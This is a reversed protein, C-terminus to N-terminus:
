IKWESKLRKLIKEAALQEADRKSFGKATEEGEGQVSVVITFTPQHDPGKKDITTYVPTSKGRSQVLEQLRTKADRKAVKVNHAMEHWFKRIFKEAELYGAELYIAGIVSECVDAIITERKRGGTDESSKAMHIFDGLNLDAAIKACAERRVLNTHRSALGGEDANPHLEFMWAAIALGLVRDGIFELRQYSPTGELSPHTLAERILSEDKFSYGLIEYLESYQSSM